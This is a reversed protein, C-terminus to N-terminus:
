PNCLPTKRPIHALLTIDGQPTVQYLLENVDGDSCSDPGYTDVLYVGANPLALTSGRIVGNKEVYVFQTFSVLAAAEAGNRITPTRHLFNILEEKSRLVNRGTRGNSGPAELWWGHACPGGWVRLYQNETREPTLCGPSEKETLQINAGFSKLRPATVKEWGTARLNAKFAREYEASQWQWPKGTPLWTPRAIPLRGAPVLLVSIAFVAGVLGLAVLVNKLM